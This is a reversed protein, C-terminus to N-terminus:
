FVVDFGFGSCPSAAKEKGFFFSSFIQFTEGFVSIIQPNKDV